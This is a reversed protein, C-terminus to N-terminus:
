SSGLNEAMLYGALIALLVLSAVAVAINATRPTFTITTVVRDDERRAELKILTALNLCAAALPGILFLVPSLRHYWPLRRPDALFGLGEYLLPVGVAYKFLSATVYLAVPTLLLFGIAPGSLPALRSRVLGM